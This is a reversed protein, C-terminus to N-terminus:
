RFFALSARFTALVGWALPVAVWLWRVVLKLRPPGAEPSVVPHLRQTDSM